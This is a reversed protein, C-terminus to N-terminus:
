SDSRVVLLGTSVPRESKISPYMVKGNAYLTTSNGGDLDLATEVDLSVLMSILQSMTAGSRGDVGGVSMIVTEGSSTWGVVTRPSPQNMYTDNQSIPSAVGDDLIIPHGGISDCGSSSATTLSVASGVGLKSFASASAASIDVRGSTVKLAKTTRGVYTLQATTNITTPSAAGPTEAFEFTTRGPATPITLAYPATYLLTGALPLHVGVYSMPLEQNIAAIRVNSGNVDVTSSWNFTNSVSQGDLNVQEHAIEPTHLLACNRTIGGVEDGPDPKGSLTVDFFDGNVAAVCGSTANCMSSPKEVGGDIANNALGIKLTYQSGYFTLLRISAHVGYSAGNMPYVNIGNAGIAGASTPAFSTEAGCSIASM